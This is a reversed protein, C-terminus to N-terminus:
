RTPAPIAALELTSSPPLSLKPLPAADPQVTTPPAPRVWVIQRPDPRALRAGIRTVLLDPHQEEAAQAEVTSVERTIQDVKRELEQTIKAHRTWQQRISTVALAGGAAEALLLLALLACAIRLFRDPRTTM